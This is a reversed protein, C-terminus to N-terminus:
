LPYFTVGNEDAMRPGLKVKVGEFVGPSAERYAISQSGTNIVASEPVALVRGKGLMEKREADDGVAAVLVPLKQPVIRLSVTATSGPRLKHDPNAVECRVSVTRTSQDVHPYIFALKGEFPEDPFARTTATVAPADAPSLDGRHLQATPLFEIDDEYV